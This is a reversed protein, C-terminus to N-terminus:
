GLLIFRRAKAEPGFLSENGPAIRELELEKTGDSAYLVNTKRIISSMMIFCEELLKTAFTFPEVWVNSADDLIGWEQKLQMSKCIEWASQINLKGYHREPIYILAGRITNTPHNLNVLDLKERHITNRVEFVLDVLTRTNQEVFFNALGDNHDFIKKVFPGNRFSIRYEPPEKFGLLRYIILAQSDLIGSLLLSLYDFHYMMNEETDIHHQRYFITGIEDRAQVARVCRSIITNVLEPIAQYAPDIQGILFANVYRWLAPIKSFTFIQYYLTRNCEGWSAYRYDGRSRMLLGLIKLTELPTRPNTKEILHHTRNEILWQSTTVFINQSMSLSAHAAILDDYIKQQAQDGSGTKSALDQAYQKLWNTTLVASETKRDGYDVEVKQIGDLVDDLVEGFKIPRFEGDGIQLAELPPQKSFEKLVELADQEHQSLNKLSDFHYTIRLSRSYSDRDFPSVIKGLVQDLSDIKNFDRIDHWSVQEIM